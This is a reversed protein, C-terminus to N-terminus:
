AMGLCKFQKRGSSIFKLVRKEGIKAVNHNPKRENNGNYQVLGAM